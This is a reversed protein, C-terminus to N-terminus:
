AGMIEIYDEKLLTGLEKPHISGTNSPNMMSLPRETRKSLKVILNTTKPGDSAMYVMYKYGAQINLPGGVTKNVKIISGKKLVHM